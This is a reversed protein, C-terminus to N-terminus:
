HGPRLQYTLQLAGSLKSTTVSVIPGACRLFRAAMYAYDAYKIRKTPRSLIQFM